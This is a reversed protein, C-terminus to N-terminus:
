NKKRMLNFFLHAFHGIALFTGLNPCKKHGFGNEFTALQGSKKAVLGSEVLWNKDFGLFIQGSGVKASWFHGRFKAFFFLPQATWSVGRTWYNSLWIL